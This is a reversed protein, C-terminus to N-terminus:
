TEGNIWNSAQKDAVCANLRDNRISRWKGPLPVIAIFQIIMHVYSPTHINSHHVHVCSDIATGETGATLTPTGRAEGRYTAAWVRLPPGVTQIQIPPHTNPTNPEMDYNSSFPYSLCSVSQQGYGAACRMAWRM